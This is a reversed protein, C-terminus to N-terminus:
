SPCIKFSIRDRWDSSGAYGPTPHGQYIRFQGQTIFRYARDVNWDFAFRVVRLGDQPRIEGLQGWLEYSANLPAFHKVAPETIINIAYIATGGPEIVGLYNGSAVPVIDTLKIRCDYRPSQGPIPTSAAGASPVSGSEGLSQREPETFVQQPMAEDSSSGSLTRSASLRAQSPAWWSNIVFTTKLARQDWRIQSVKGSLDAAVFGRAALVRYESTGDSTLYQRALLEAADELEDRNIELGNFRRLRLEPREVIFVDPQTPDGNLIDEVIEPLLRVIANNPERRFGAAFYEKRQNQTDGLEATFQIELEGVELPDFMTHPDPTSGVVSGSLKGLREAFYLINLEPVGGPSPYFLVKQASNLWNGADDRRAIRARGARARKKGDADIHDQLVRTWRPDFRVPDLQIYHYAQAKVRERHLLPVDIFQRRVHSRPDAGLLGNPDDIALWAGTADQIVFRWVPPAPNSQAYGDFDWGEAVAIPASTLVVSRSRRDSAPLAVEPLLDDPDITPLAGADFLQVSSLWDPVSVRPCYAAGLYDLMRALETPAHAGLWQLKRMPPLADVAPPPLEFGVGLKAMARTLLQSNPVLAVVPGTAASRAPEPNIEGDRLRAGRPEAFERRFDALYLRYEVVRSVDGVQGLRSPEVEVISTRPLLVDPAVGPAPAFSTWFRVTGRFSKGALKEWETYPVVAQNVDAVLGASIEWERELTLAVNVASDDDPTFTVIRYPGHAM